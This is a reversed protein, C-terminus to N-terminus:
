FSDVRLPFFGPPMPMIHWKCDGGSDEDEFAKDWDDKLAPPIDWALDKNRLHMRVLHRKTPSSSDREDSTADVFASRRHLLALNNVFHLDGPKTMFEM